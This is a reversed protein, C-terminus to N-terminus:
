ILKRWAMANIAKDDILIDYHPKKNMILEHYSVGWDNLQKITYDTWDKGSVSGRATFMKITHGTTFLENIKDIVDGFPISAPYDNGPTNCITGDIDFCYIM